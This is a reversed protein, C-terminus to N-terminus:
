ISAQDCKCGPMPTEIEAELDQSKDTYNEEEVYFYIGLTSGVYAAFVYKARGAYKGEAEWQPTGGYSM